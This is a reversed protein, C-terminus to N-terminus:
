IHCDVIVLWDDSDKKSEFYDAIKQEYLARTEDTEDSMAWWGMKGPEIWEGDILMAYTLSNNGEEIEKIYEDISSYKEDIYKKLEEDTNYRNIVDKKSEFDYKFYKSLQFDIDKFRAGNVGEYKDTERKPIKGEIFDFSSLTARSSGIGEKGLEIALMNPWRGGITYWDWKSKPNYTSLVNGDDDTEYGDIYEEYLEIETKDKIEEYRKLIYDKNYRPYLRDFEAEDQKILRYYEKYEERQNLVKQIIDAKHESIYPDMELSEDFPALVEKLKYQVDSIDYSGDIVVGVTYHSV